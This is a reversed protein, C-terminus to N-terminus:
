SIKYEVDYIHDKNYGGGAVLALDHKIHDIMQEKNDFYDTDMTYVDDFTLTENPNKICNIDPHTPLVKFSIEAKFVKKM